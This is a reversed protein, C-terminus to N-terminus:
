TRSSQVGPAERKNRRSCALSEAIADKLEPCVNWLPLLDPDELAHRRMEPSRLLEEAILRAAEEFRGLRSFACALNLDGYHAELGNAQSAREAAERWLATRREGGAETGMKLLVGSWNDLARAYGPNHQITEEYCRCAERRLRLREDGAEPDALNDLANGRNYHARFMDPRYRLAEEFRQCAQELLHQRRRGPNLAALQTLAVGWQNLGEADDPRRRIEDEFRRCAQDLARIQAAQGFQADTEALAADLEPSKEGLEQARLLAERAERPEGSALLAEGLRRHMGAARPVRDCAEQFRWVAEQPRGAQLCLNGAELFADVSDPHRIAYQELSSLQDELDGPEPPPLAPAPRQGIRRILQKLPDPAAPRLDVWTMSELFAPLKPIKRCKPLIVPIVPCGREAFQHLLAAIELDQWPGLGEEGVFVAAAGISQIQKEVFRKWPRGPRLEWVDLWPSLGRLRLRRAVDEVAPRAQGHYCLFVDYHDIMADGPETADKTFWYLKGLGDERVLAAVEGASLTQGATPM